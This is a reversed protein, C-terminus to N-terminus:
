YLLDICNFTFFLRKTSNKLINKFIIANKYSNTKYRLYRNISSPFPHMQDIGYEM